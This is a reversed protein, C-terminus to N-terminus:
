LDLNPDAVMKASVDTVDDATLIPNNVRHDPFFNFPTNGEYIGISWKGEKEFDIIGIFVGVAIGVFLLM